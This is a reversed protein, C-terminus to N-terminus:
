SGVASTQVYPQDARYLALRERITASLAEDGRAAALAAAESAARVADDFRGASAYAAALTDLVAPERGTQSAAEEALAVAQEPRRLRQEECTALIWALNNSTSPWGPRLQLAMGYSRIAEPFRGERESLVGLGAHLDPSTQGLAVARELHARAERGRGRDVLVLGLELHAAGNGPDLALGQEYHAIVDSSQDREAFVRALGFHCVAGRPRLLGSKAYLELAREFEPRAERFRGAGLLALGLHTRAHAHDPDLGLARRFEDIADEFREQELRLDGLGVRPEASRANTRVAREFAAEAEDFRDERLFAQGLANQAIFSHPVLATAREFVAISNAWYGVQFWACLALAAVAASAGAALAARSWRRRGLLAPVGWAVAISLGIMPLYMYRDARAQNGVQVLGIVPVLMGLYWLWGVLLYPRAAALWAAGATTAALAAGSAAAWWASQDAQPHPYFPSLGSPWFSKAVYVVYSDLANMVRQGFPILEASVTAGTSRQVVLTVVAVAAAIALLPLKEVVARGLLGADPMRLAPDRRLRGLPWYDLLLLVLPLTVLMPKSLLGAAVCLLVALYRGLSRPGQAYRAYAYLTLAFFFGSLADKRESAWAVSEVHMPHWAFVAAVFGSAWVSGTMRALAFFLVVAALTHLLANSLLYGAPEPGFLSASLQLSITTLPHWNDFSPAAFARLAGELSAGGVVDPNEAVLALDDYILFDHGRVQGYLAFTVVALMLAIPWQPRM